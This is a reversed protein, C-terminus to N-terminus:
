RRRFVKRWIGVKKSDFNWARLQILSSVEMETWRNNNITEVQNEEHSQTEVAMPSVGLGKRIFKKLAEM